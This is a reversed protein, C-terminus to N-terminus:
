AQPTLAGRVAKDLADARFPKALLPANPAVRKVAETESYGSVFLIPLDPQRELIRNAVEAGSLGPMIFDLVVLDPKERAIEALGHRGDSAQRVKYGQEELTTAVFGRVDPDDDIILVSAPKLQAKAQKADEVASPVVAEGEAARFYLKVATGGGPASELRATGGSQRAMGYVMSLGLGTGKGVEKTTFFPEFARAAVEENMGTGTDSITLEIYDGDELEPDREVAVRRSAFSLVGGEPMADRANIALNLVAVELQTPDAMVPMAEEDLDFQKTIGPGLVNRLLPRMNHILPAVHTPRVELRQVRSFALLQGTLRAGREAAALANEAYRKLKEDEIRKHLLDLGGVVVTLLNNFDHAIGGTLQGLAEMKQSQRLQEQAHMLEQTQQEVLGRLELEADKALTIDTAVGIFGVLEGDPGYRPQSVSRLWRWDGDARLYRGELTFRLGSAEGAISEAVLRDRDDPHIRTRWDLTRAEEPTLGTFEVYADNVFDRVRDLRTVWMMVPASNAIRRFREESERLAKETARQESIDTVVLVVGDIRGTAPNVWPVYETQAALIGRTPHEFTAAFYQREGAMAADLMPKRRTYNEEGIAEAMTRGILERRPMELWDALAKNIFRYREDRDIFATMVPLLDALTLLGPATFMASPLEIPLDVAPAKAGSEGAGQKVKRAM